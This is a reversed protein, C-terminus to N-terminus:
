RQLFGGAGAQGDNALVLEEHATAADWIRATGDEGVTVIRAGSPDYAM